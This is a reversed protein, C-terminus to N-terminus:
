QRAYESLAARMDNGTIWFDSAIARADANQPTLSVNYRDILPQWDFVAAVGELFPIPRNRLWLSQSISHKSIHASHLVAGFFSYTFVSRV